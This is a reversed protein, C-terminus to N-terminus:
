DPFPQLPVDFAREDGGVELVGRREPALHVRRGGGTIELATRAVSSNVVEHRHGAPDRYEWGVTGEPLVRARTVVRVGRGTLTVDAGEPRLKVGTGRNLLGGLRHRRGDLCLTGFASWPTLRGGIRVRGLIADLWGTEDDGLGAARLWIWRAAHETGWNHGLMGTWGTLDVDAGAVTLTGSAVLDPLPSTAKTRPLPARYLLTPTLHELPGGRPEFRVDWRADVLDLSGSSGALGQTADGVVIGHGGPTVPLDGRKGARVGDPGFWTVWLAGTAVRGPRKAVTTRVWLARPETPHALVAYVSEYHPDPLAVDPYRLRM